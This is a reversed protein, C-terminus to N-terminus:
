GTLGQQGGQCMNDRHTAHRFEMLVEFLKSAEFINNTIDKGIHNFFYRLQELFVSDPVQINYRDGDYEIYREEVNSVLSLSHYSINKNQHYLVVNAVDEADTDERISFTNGRIKLVDGLLHTALDLEHSLELLAGGGRLYSASYTQYDRWKALNTHCVFQWTSNKYNKQKLKRVLPLHRLPYAIYCTLGKATVLNKLHTLSYDHKCDVPKTIFLHMGREACQIATEIHLYTPNTIIAVDPKISDVDDWGWLNQSAPLLCYYNNRRYDYKNSTRLAFIDFDFNDRLLRYYRQGISGLGFFLVKL